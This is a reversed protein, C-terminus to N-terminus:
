PQHALESAAADEFIFTDYYLVAAPDLFNRPYKKRPSSPTYAVPQCNVYSVPKVVRPKRGRRARIESPLRWGIEWLALYLM